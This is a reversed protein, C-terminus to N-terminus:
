EKLQNKSQVGTERGDLYITMGMMDWKIVRNLEASMGLALTLALEYKHMLQSEFDPAPPTNSAM